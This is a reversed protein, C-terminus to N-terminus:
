GTLTGSVKTRLHIVEISSCIGHRRRCRANDKIHTYIMTWEKIEGDVCTAEMAPVLGVDGEIGISIGAGKLLAKDHPWQLVSPIAYGATDAEHCKIIRMTSIVLM